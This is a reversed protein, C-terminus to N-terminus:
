TPPLRNAGRLVLATRNVLRAFEPDGKARKEGAKLHWEVGEVNKWSFNSYPEYNMQGVQRALFEARTERRPRCRYEAVLRALSRASM